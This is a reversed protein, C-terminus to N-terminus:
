WNDYAMPWAPDYTAYAWILCTAGDGECAPPYQWYYGRGGAAYNDLLPAASFWKVHGDVFNVNMGGQHRESYGHHGPRVDFGVSHDMWIDASRNPIADYLMFVKTPHAVKDVNVPGSQDSLYYHNLGANRMFTYKLPHVSPCIWLDQNSIYPDLQDPFFIGGSTTSQAQRWPSFMGHYDSAYMLEALATQKMNSLCRIQESNEPATAFAPLLITALIAIMAIVVLLEVLTFGKRKNLM